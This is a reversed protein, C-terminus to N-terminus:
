SEWKAAARSYFGDRDADIAAMIEEASAMPHLRQGSPGFIGDDGRMWGALRMRNDAESMKRLMIMYEEAIAGPYTTM